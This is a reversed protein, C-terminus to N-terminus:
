QKSSFLKSLFLGHIFVLHVFIPNSLFLIPHFAKSRFGNSSFNNSSFQAFTSIVISIYYWIRYHNQRRCRCITATSATSPRREVAKAEGRSSPASRLRQWRMRRLLNWSHQPPMLLYGLPRLTLHPQHQIHRRNGLVEYWLIKKVYIIESMHM